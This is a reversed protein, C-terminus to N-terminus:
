SMLLSSRAHVTNRNVHERCLTRQERSGVTNVCLRFKSSFHSMLPSSNPVASTAEPIRTQSCIPTWPAHNQVAIQLSPPRKSKLAILSFNAKELIELQVKLPKLILCKIMLFMPRSIFIFPKVYMFVFTLTFLICYLYEILGSKGMKKM